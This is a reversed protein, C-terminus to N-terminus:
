YRKSDGDPDDRAAGGSEDRPRALTFTWLLLLLFSREAEDIEQSKSPDDVGTELSRRVRVWDHNLPMLRTADDRLWDKYNM